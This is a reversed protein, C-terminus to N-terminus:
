ETVELGKRNKESVLSKIGLVGEPTLNVQNRETSEHGTEPYSTKIEAQGRKDAM